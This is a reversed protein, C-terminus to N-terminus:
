LTPLQDPMLPSRSIRYSALLEADCTRCLHVIQTAVISLQSGRSKEIVAKIAAEVDPSDCRPCRPSPDRHWTTECRACTIAIVDGEREGDLEEDEGCAPCVIDSM